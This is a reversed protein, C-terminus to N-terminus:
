DKIKRLQKFCSWRTSNSFISSHLSESIELQFLKDECKIHLGLSM